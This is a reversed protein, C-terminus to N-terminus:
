HSFFLCRQAREVSVPLEDAQSWENGKAKMLSRVRIILNLAGGAGVEVAVHLPAERSIGQKATFDRQFLPVLTSARMEEDDLFVQYTAPVRASLLAKNFSQPDEPLFLLYTFLRKVEELQAMQRPRLFKRGYMLAAEVSSRSMDDGDADVVATKDIVMDVNEGDPDLPMDSHERAEVFHEEENEEDEEDEIEEDGGDYDSVAGAHASTNASRRRPWEEVGLAIRLFRSRHLYFELPSHRAELFPREQAAWKIAPGMDGNKLALTIEQLKQFTGSPLTSPSGIHAEHEFARAVDWEGCRELHDRIVGDLAGQALKNQFLSADAVDDLPLVFKKDLAKGLKSLANYYEKHKDNIAKSCKGVKQQLQASLIQAPLTSQKAEELANLLTDLSEIVGEASTSSSAVRRPAASSSKTGSGASAAATKHTGIGPAKELVRQVEKQITEMAAPDLNHHHHPQPPTPLPLPTGTDCGGGGRPAEGGTAEWVRAHAVRVAGRLTNSGSELTAVRECM